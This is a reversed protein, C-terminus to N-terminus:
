LRVILKLNFRDKKDYDEIIDRLNINKFIIQTRYFNCTGFFNIYTQYNGTVLNLSADYSRNDIDVPKLIFQNRTM